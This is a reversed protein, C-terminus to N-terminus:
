KEYYSCIAKVFSKIPRYEQNSKKMIFGVENKLGEYELPRMIIDGKYEDSLGYSTSFVVGMNASVCRLIMELDPSTLVVNPYFGHEICLQIYNKLVSASSEPLIQPVDKLDQITIEKQKALPHSSHMLIQPTERCIRVYILDEPLKEPKHVLGLDYKGSSIARECKTYNGATASQIRIDGMRSIFDPPIVYPMFSHEFYLSFSSKSREIISSMIAEHEEIKSLMSEAVPLIRKGIDTLQMGKESRAFLSVGMEQELSGIAKSLAQQSVYLKVAAKSLSNEHAVAIFQQLQNKNM